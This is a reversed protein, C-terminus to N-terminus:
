KKPIALLIKGDGELNNKRKIGEKKDRGRLEFMSYEKIHGKHREM